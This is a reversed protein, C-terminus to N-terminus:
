PKAAKMTAGVPAQRIVLSDLTRALRDVSVSWCLETRRARAAAALASLLAPDRELAIIAAALAGPDGAPVILGDRGHRVLEGTAGGDTAIVPVGSALAEAAVIGFGEGSVSPVVFLDAARYLGPLDAEPVRGLFTVSPLGAALRELKAQEPRRRRDHAHSTRWASGEAM